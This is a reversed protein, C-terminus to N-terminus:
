LRNFGPYVYFVREARYSTNRFEICATPPKYIAFLLHPKASKRRHCACKRRYRSLWASWDSELLSRGSATKERMSIRQAHGPPLTRKRAGFPCWSEAQPKLGLFNVWHSGGQFPALSGRCIGGRLGLRHENTSVRPAIGIVSEQYTRSCISRAGKCPATRHPRNWPNFGRASGQHGKPARFREFKWAASEEGM